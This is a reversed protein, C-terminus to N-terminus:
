RRGDGHVIVDWADCELTRLGREQSAAPLEFRINSWQDQATFRPWHVGCPHRAGAYEEAYAFEAWYCAMDRSLLREDEGARPGYNLEDLAYLMFRIEAGHFVGDRNLKNGPMESFMYLWTPVGRRSLQRGIYRTPCTMMYDGVAFQAATWWDKYTGRRPDPRHPDVRYIDHLLPGAKDGWQRRVYAAFGEATLHYPVWHEGTHNYSIFATGEDKNTGLIVRVGPATEGAEVLDAPPRALEVGDVVPAWQCADWSDTHPLRTGQSVKLLRKGDLQLLCDVVLAPDTGCGVGEALARFNKEADALSKTTWMQFGGSQVVASRFLGWSRKMVVHNSVSGAGASEGVISVQRPDGGFAGINRRVWELALRQDQMGWNGTSNGAGRRLLDSGLFGFVDLRYNITVLLTPRTNATKNFMLDMLSGGDLETDHAGGFSYGGGHIFVQVPRPPADSAVVPTLVNLFLCDESYPGRMTPWAPPKYQLCNAGFSTAKLPHSWPRVPQPSRWRLAGIPPEAYPIGLYAHHSRLAAGTVSGSGDPLQVTPAAAPVALASHPLLVVALGVLLVVSLM